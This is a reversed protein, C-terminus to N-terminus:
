SVPTIEPANSNMLSSKAGSEGKKSPMMTLKKSTPATIPASDAPRERVADTAPWWV